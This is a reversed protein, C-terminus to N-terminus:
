APACQAGAIRKSLEASCGDFECSVCAVSTSAMRCVLMAEGKVEAGQLAARQSSPGDNLARMGSTEGAAVVDM